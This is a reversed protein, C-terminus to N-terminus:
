PDTPRVARMARFYPQDLHLLEADHAVHSHTSGRSIPPRAPLGLKKLLSWLHLPLVSVMYPRLVGLQGRKVEDIEVAPLAIALQRLRTCCQGLSQVAKLSFIQHQRGTTNAGFALYLQTLSALHTDPCGADFGTRAHSEKIRLYELGSFSRLFRMLLKIDCRQWVNILSFGRLHPRNSEHRRILHSLVPGTNTCDDLGLETLHSFDIAKLFTRDAYALDIDDLWLKELLVKTDRSPNVQNIHGFLTSFIKGDASATDQMEVKKTWM